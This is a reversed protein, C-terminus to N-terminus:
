SETLVLANPINRGPGAAYGGRYYLASSGGGDLNMAYQMGMTRMLYALDVVTARGAVILYLNPGKLGIGSRFSKVDRQKPTLANVDLVLQGRDVLLPDNSIAATLNKGQETPSFTKTEPYFVWVRDPNVTFLPGNNFRNQKANIFVSNRSNLVMWFFSGDQNVCGAYDRPCFYTGNIGAFGRIEDVYSKVSRVTCNDQCDANVGTLTKVKLKPNTLNVTVVDISFRENRAVVSIRRYSDYTNVIPSTLAEVSTAALLGALLLLVGSLFTRM